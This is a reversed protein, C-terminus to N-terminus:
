KPVLIYDYLALPVLKAENGLVGIAKVSVTGKAGPCFEDGRMSFETRNRFRSEPIARAVTRTVSESINGKTTVTEKGACKLGIQRFIWTEKADTSEIVLKFTDGPKLFARNKVEKGNVLCRIKYGQASAQLSVLTLILLILNKM